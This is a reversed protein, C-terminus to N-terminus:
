LAPPTAGIPPDTFEDVPRSVSEGQYLGVLGVVFARVDVSGADLGRRAAVQELRPEERVGGGERDVVAGDVEQDALVGALFGVVSGCLSVWPRRWGVSRM